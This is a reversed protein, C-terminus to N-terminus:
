NIYTSSSVGVPKMKMKKHYRHNYNDVIDDLNDIHVNKYKSTM